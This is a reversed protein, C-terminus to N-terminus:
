LWCVKFCPHQQNMKMEIMNAKEGMIGMSICTNM